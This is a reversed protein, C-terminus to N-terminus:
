ASSPTSERTRPLPDFVSPPMPLRIEVDLGGPSINRASVAGSYFRVVHDTIALGLGTGGTERERAANVRYFPTFIQTLDAPPVGPGQDLVHIVATPPSSSHDATLSVEVCSFERTYRVANRVVNEIASRLLYESAHVMCADVQALIVSRNSASAEFDADAVIDSILLSVEVHTPPFSPEGGDLRALMLIQSLMREIRDAESEVREFLEDRVAGSNKKALDVALTLRALPSRIEHSIAQLMQHQSRVLTEVRDAMVDFDRALDTIEDRRSGLEPAIRVKLNGDALQRSAKQLRLVPSTIYHALLFCVLASALTVALLRLIRARPAGNILWPPFPPLPPLGHPAYLVYRAGSPGTVGQLSAGFVPHGEFHTASDLGAEIIWPRISEPAPNGDLDVGNARYLVPHIGTPSGVERLYDSLATAGREEFLGAMYQAQLPMLSRVFSRM